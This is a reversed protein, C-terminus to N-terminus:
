RKELLVCIESAAKFVAPTLRDMAAFIGGVAKGVIREFLNRGPHQAGAALCYPCVSADSAYVKGYKRAIHVLGAPRKNRKEGVVANKLVTFHQRPFLGDLFKKDITRMHGYINFEKKCRGCWGVPWTHTDRYPSNILIYRDAVRKLENISEEFDEERIHELVDSVLVLDFARDRFPIRRIDAVCVPADCMTRALAFSIDMGYCLLDKRDRLARFVYGGGFGVDLATKVGAPIFDLITQMREHDSHTVPSSHIFRDLWDKTDYLTRTM